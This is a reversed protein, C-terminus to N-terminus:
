GALGALWKCAALKALLHALLHGSSGGGEESKSRQASVWSIMLGKRKRKCDMILQTRPLIDVVPRNANM